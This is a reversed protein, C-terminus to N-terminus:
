AQDEAGLIQCYAVCPPNVFTVGKSGLEDSGIRRAFSTRPLKVSGLAKGIEAVVTDAEERTQVPCDIEIGNTLSIILTVRSSM